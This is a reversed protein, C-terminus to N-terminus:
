EVAADASEETPRGDNSQISSDISSSVGRLSTGADSSSFLAFVSGDGVYVKIAGGSSGDLSSASSAM